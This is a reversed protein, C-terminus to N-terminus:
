PKRFVSVSKQVAPVHHSGDGEPVRLLEGGELVVLVQGAGLNIDGPLNMFCHKRLSLTASGHSKTHIRIRPDMGRVLPDPIRVRIRIRISSVSGAIKKM